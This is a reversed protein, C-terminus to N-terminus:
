LAARLRKYAAAVAAHQYPTFSGGAMCMGFIRAHSSTGSISGIRLAGNAIAASAASGTALTAGERLVRTANSASRDLAFLGDPFTNTNLVASAENIRTSIQTGTCPAVTVGKSGDHFGALSASSVVGNGIISFMFSASNQSFQGGATSPNFGTSIYNGTTFTEIGGDVIFSPAGVLSANFTGPNKWNLLAAQQTHAEYIQVIDSLQWAGCDKLLFIFENMAAQRAADPQESIAALLTATEAQGPTAAYAGRYAVHLAEFLTIAHQAAYGSMRKNHHTGDTTSNPQWKDVATADVQAPRINFTGDLNADSAVSAVFDANALDWEGGTEFGTRPTQGGVTTWDGNTKPSLFIQAVYPVGKSKALAWISALRTKTNALTEGTTYDNGGHGEFFHTCYELYAERMAHSQTFILATEGSKSLNIRAIKEGRVLQLARRLYGGGDNTGDGNDDAIGNEISAGGIGVSMMPGVPVGIIATPIYVNSAAVWGGSAVLEGTAHLQSATGTPAVVVSEGPIATAYNATQLYPFKGGVTVEREVRAWAEANADVVSVGFDAATLEDSLVRIDGPAITVTPAGDNWTVPVSVGNYEIDIAETRANSTNAEGSAGIYKGDVAVRFSTVDRNGFYFRRRHTEKVNSSITVAGEIHMVEGRTTVIQAAMPAPPSGDRNARVWARFGKVRDWGEGNAVRREWPGVGATSGLLFAARRLWPGVGTPTGLSEAYRRSWSAM